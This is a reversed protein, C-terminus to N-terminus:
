LIKPKGKILTNEISKGKGCTVSCVGEENKWIFPDCMQENCIKNDKDSISPKKAANCKSDDLKNGTSPDNCIISAKEIGIRSIM